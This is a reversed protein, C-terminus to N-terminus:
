YSNIAMSLWQYGDILLLLGGGDDNDMTQQELPAEVGDEDPPNPLGAAVPQSAVSDDVEIGPACSPSIIPCWPSKLSKSPSIPYSLHSPRPKYIKYAVCSSDHLSSIQPSWNSLGQMDCDHGHHVFIKPLQFSLDGGRM